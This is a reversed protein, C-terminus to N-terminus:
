FSLLLTVLSPGGETTFAHHFIKATFFFLVYKRCIMLFLSLQLIHYTGLTLCSPKSLLLTPDFKNVDIPGSINSLKSLHLDSIRIDM